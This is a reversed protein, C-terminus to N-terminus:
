SNCGNHNAFTTTLFNLVCVTGHACVDLECFNMVNFGPFQVIVYRAPPLDMATCQLIVTADDPVAGPYQACVPYNGMTPPVVGASVNTVGIIFNDSRGATVIDLSWYCNSGWSGISTHVNATIDPPSCTLSHWANRHNELPGVELSTIESDLTGIKM